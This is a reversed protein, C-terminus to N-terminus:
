DCMAKLRSKRDCAHPMACSCQQTMSEKNVSHQLFPAMGDCVQLTANLWVAPATLVTRVLMLSRFISESSGSLSVRKGFEDCQERDTAQCSSSQGLSAISYTSVALCNACTRCLPDGVRSFHFLSIASHLMIHHFM